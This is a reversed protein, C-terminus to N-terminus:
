IQVAIFLVIIHKNDISTETVLACYEYEIDVKKCNKSMEIIGVNSHCSQLSKCGTHVAQHIKPINLGFHWGRYLEAWLL